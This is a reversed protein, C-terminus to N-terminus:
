FFGLVARKAVAHEAEIGLLPIPPTGDLRAVYILPAGTTRMRTSVRRMVVDCGRSVLSAALMSDTMYHMRKRGAITQVCLELTFNHNDGGSRKCLVVVVLKPDRSRKFSVRVYTDACLHRSSVM